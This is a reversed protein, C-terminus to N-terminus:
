GGRTIITLCERGPNVVCSGGAGASERFGGGLCETRGRAFGKEGRRPFIKKQTKGKSTERFKEKRLKRIGRLLGFLTIRARKGRRGGVGWKSRGVLKGNADNAAPHSIYDFTMPEIYFLGPPPMFLKM